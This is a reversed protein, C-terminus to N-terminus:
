LTLEVARGKRALSVVRLDSNGKRHRSLTQVWAVVWDRQCGCSLDIAPEAGGVPDSHFVHSVGRVWVDAGDAM